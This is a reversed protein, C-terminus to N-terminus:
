LGRILLAALLAVILWLAVNGWRNRRAQARGIGEVTEAHVLPKDM